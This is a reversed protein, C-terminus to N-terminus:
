SETSTFLLMVGGPSFGVKRYVRKPVAQSEDVYLLVRSFGLEDLLRRCMDRVMAYGFGKGRQERRVFVFNIRADFETTQQFAVGGLPSEVGIAWFLFMHQQQIIAQLSPALQDSPQPPMGVDEHFQRYMELVLLTHADEAPLLQCLPSQRSKLSHSQPDALSTLSMLATTLVQAPSSPM